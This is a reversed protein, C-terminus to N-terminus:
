RRVSPRPQQKGNGEAASPLRDFTDPRVRCWNLRGGAGSAEFLLTFEVGAAIAECFDRDLKALNRILMELSKDGGTDDLVDLIRLEVGASM